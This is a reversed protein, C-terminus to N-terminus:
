CSQHETRAIIDEQIPRELATFFASYGAVRVVLDRYKDPNAQADRLTEVSIVNFQVHMGGLIFYTQVLNCLKRVTEPAQFLAPSFKQNLLTGNSALVHDLKAVSKMAATPGLRDRGQAPSVGDSLPTGALRGDPTAGVHLGMPVHATAPYLGPQFTGGLVTRYREVEQCFHAAVERALYDVSDDDNGLKSPRNLLFERLDEAGEFNRRLVEVLESLKVVGQEYVAYRIAELSDAVTAIGIGEPGNFNYRAGGDTVDRGQKICDQVLCSLFPVPALERHAEMVAQEEIVMLRTAHSVQEKFAAFLENFSGFKYPTGTQPGLLEGTRPCRGNNLALELCRAFNLKSAGHMGHMCGPLSPEVCGVIAYGRAERLNCGRNLLAPIIVLDNYMAPKGAGKQVVDFARPLFDAPAHPHWRISFSPQPLRIESEVEMCLYSLDNTADLGDPTQGGVILNQYVPYGGSEKATFEDRLKIIENFKLWLCCLLEKAQERTLRGDELDRHYYPWMYQEFRGPSVSLGNSELQIILHVFWFLQLAEHFTEAPRAPVRHCIQAIQLLEDRRQPNTESAALREALDGYRKAFRIAATLVIEAADLFPIRQFDEPKSPDLAGKEHRVHDLIGSLGRKLVSEYDPIIHGIGSHLDHPNIFVGGNLAKQVDPPMLAVAREKVTRGKWWGVIELLEYKEKDSIDFPEATRLPFRDIEAQIWDVSFEPFVPAARRGSALQGVILEGPYIRVSVQDLVRELARARRVVLPDACPEQFTKTWIRARELCVRPRANVIDERIKLVRQTLM